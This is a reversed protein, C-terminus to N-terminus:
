HFLRARRFKSHFRVPSALAGIVGGGGGGGTPSPALIAPLLRYSYSTLRWWEQKEWISQITRNFRIFRGRDVGVALGLLKREVHLQTVKSSKVGICEYVLTHIHRHQHFNEGDHFLSCMWVFPIYTNANVDMHITKMNVGGHVCTYVPSSVLWSGRLVWFGHIEGRKCVM